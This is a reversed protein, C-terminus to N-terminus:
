LLAAIEEDTLGLQKLKQLATERATPEPDPLMEEHVINNLPHDHSADCNECFGGIGYVTWM